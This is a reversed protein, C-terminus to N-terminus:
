DAPSVGHERAWVAVQARSTLGLRGFVNGVHWEVTRESVVLTEGIQRNTLGRGILAVVDRERASLPEWDRDMPSRPAPPASPTTLAEAVAQEATAAGGSAWAADYADGIAARASQLLRDISARRSPSSPETIRERIAQAAALLWVGRETRSEALELMAFGELAQAIGREERLERWLSLSEGYHSRAATHDGVAHNVDGLDGLAIAMDWSNGTQRVAALSEEHLARAAAYDHEYFELRALKNLTRGEWARDGLARSVALAEEFLAHAEASRNVCRL